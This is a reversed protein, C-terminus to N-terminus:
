HLGRSPVEVPGATITFGTPLGRRTVAESLAVMFHRFAKARTEEDGPMTVLDAVAEALGVLALSSEVRIAGSPDRPLHEEAHAEIAARIACHLCRETM